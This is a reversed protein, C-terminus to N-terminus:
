HFVLSKKAPATRAQFGHIHWYTYGPLETSTRLQGQEAPRSGVTHYNLHFLQWQGTAACNCQVTAQLDDDFM